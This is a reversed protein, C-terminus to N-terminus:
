ESNSNIIYQPITFKLESGKGPESRSQIKGGHTEVFEKCLLLGLGTGKENNTGVTSHFYETKFLKEQDEFSIGVGNDEVAIEVHNNNELASIHVEGGPNTYKIANNILNRLITRLMQIDAKVKLNAALTYNLKIQKQKASIKLEAIEELLLKALDVKVPNFCKEGNQSFTWVLLNNLLTLTNQASDYVINVYEEIKNKDYNNLNDKILGLFGLISNFPSRLDHALISTFKNNKTIIEKLKESDAKIVESLQVNTEELKKLQLRLMSETMEETDAITTTTNSCVLHENRDNLYKNIPEV